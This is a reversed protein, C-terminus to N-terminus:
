GEAVAVEDFTVPNEPSGKAAVTRESLVRGKKMYVKLIGEEVLLAQLFEGCHCARRIRPRRLAERAM